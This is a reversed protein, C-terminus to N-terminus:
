ASVKPDSDIHEAIYDVYVRGFWEGALVYLSARGTRSNGKQINRVDLGYFNVLSSIRVRDADSLTLAVPLGKSRQLNDYIERIRTGPAPESQLPAVSGRRRISHVTELRM